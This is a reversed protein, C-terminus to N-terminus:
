RSSGATSDAGAPAAQGAPARRAKVEPLAEYAAVRTLMAPQDAVEPGLMYAGSETSVARGKADLTVETLGVYHGQEGGLVVTTRNVARNRQMLPVNRAAIAVDIGDVALALDETPLKGLNSLLVIVTAGQKRLDAVAQRAAAVPDTVALSDAAPGRSGEETILGFVGVRVRGFNQVLWPRVLPRNTQRDLLNACVVPLKANAITALFFGRGFMLEREGVGAANVGVDHMAQSVFVADDRESPREPFFGGADVLLLLPDVRRLSDAFGARRALGGKPIHCGCPLTKGKVDCTSLIVLKDNPSTAAATGQALAAGPASVAACTLAAFAITRRIM